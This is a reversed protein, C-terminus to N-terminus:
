MAKEIQLTILNMIVDVIEDEESLLEKSSLNVVERLDYMTM